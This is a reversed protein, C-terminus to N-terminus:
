ATVDQRQFVLASMTVVVAGYAVLVGGATTYSVADTRGSALAALPQGRLGSPRAHGALADSRGGARRGM